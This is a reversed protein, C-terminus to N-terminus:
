GCLEESMAARYKPQCFDGIVPRVLHEFDAVRMHIVDRHTGANFAIFDQNAVGRDLYVPLGFLNGLPPMAGLEAGPFLMSLDSEEALDLSPLGIAIQLQEMDVYSDGPVVVMVYGQHSQCVVTKAM